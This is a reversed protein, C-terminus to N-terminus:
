CVQESYLQKIALAAVQSPAVVTGRAISELVIRYRDREAEVERLRALLSEERDTM